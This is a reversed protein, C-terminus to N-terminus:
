RPVRKRALDIARWLHRGTIPGRYLIKLDRDLLFAEPSEQVGLQEYLGHRDLTVRFPLSTKALEGEEVYYEAQDDRRESEETIVIVSSFLGRFLDQNRRVTAMLDNYAENGRNSGLCVFLNWKGPETGAAFDGLALPPKDDLPAVAVSPFYSVSSEESTNSPPEEKFFERHWAVTAECRYWRHAQRSLERAEEQSGKAM